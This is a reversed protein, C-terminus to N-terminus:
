YFDLLIIILVYIERRVVSSRVEDKILRTHRSPAKLAAEAAALKAQMASLADAAREKDEADEAAAAQPCLFCFM